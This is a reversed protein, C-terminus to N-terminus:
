STPTPRTTSSASSSTRSTRRPRRRDQGRHAGGDRRAPPDARRPRSRDPLLLRLHQGRAQGGPRAVPRRHHPDAPQVLTLRPGPGARLGRLRGADARGDRLLHRQPQVRGRQAGRLPRRVRAPREPRLPGPLLRGPSRHRRGAPRFRRAADGRDLLQTFTATPDLNSVVIPATVVEGDGLDVGQVKGEASVIRRWRPTAACSAATRSSCALCTTPCPASAGACRPCPPRARRPWRSPSASRAARAYYPGRFTSNVALFALMSRVPAHEVKDPLFRDVVDMVSGFMATRIAERETENAAVGVDRRAVQAAHARRLPRHGAAPADAWAAVEAMGLVAEFGITTAWTPSCGRPTPTSCSRRSAAGSISASQVEPEYIPCAAFGLDDFIENPIPFQISGALEFQYGRILETTSAMGGIFHNKELCLVRLGGRAMVAAATLGNHGAGIVIADYDSMAPVTAIGLDSLEHGRM